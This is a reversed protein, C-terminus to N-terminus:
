NYHSSLVNSVKVLFIRWFLEELIPNVSSFYLALFILLAFHWISQFIWFPQLSNDSAPSVLSTQETLTRHDPSISGQSSSPLFDELVFFHLGERVLNGRFVDVDILCLSDPLIQKPWSNFTGMNEDNQSSGSWTHNFQGASNFSQEIHRGTRLAHGPSCRIFLFTVVVLSSLVTCYITAYLM